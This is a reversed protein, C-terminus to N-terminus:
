ASVTYLNPWKRALVNKTEIKPTGKPMGEREERIAKQNWERLPTV